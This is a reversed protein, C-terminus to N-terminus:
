NKKVPIGLEKIIKKAQWDRFTKSNDFLWRYIGGRQKPPPKKIYNIIVLTDDSTGEILIKHFERVLCPSIRTTYDGRLHDPELDINLVKWGMVSPHKTSVGGQLYKIAYALANTVELSGVLDTHLKALMAITQQKRPNM